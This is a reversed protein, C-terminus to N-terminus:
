RAPRIAALDALDDIPHQTRRPDQHRDGRTRENVDVTIHRQRLKPSQDHERTATREIRTREGISEPHMDRGRRPHTITEHGLPQDASLNRRRITALDRERQRRRADCRPSPSAAAVCPSRSSRRSHEWTAAHTSPAHAVCRQPRQRHAERRPSTAPIPRPTIGRDSLAGVRCHSGPAFLGHTRQLSPPLASASPAVATRSRAVRDVRPRDEDALRARGRPLQDAHRGAADHGREVLDDAVAHERPHQSLRHRQRGRDWGHSEGDRHQHRSQRSM